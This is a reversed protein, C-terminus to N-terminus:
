VEYTSGPRHLNWGHPSFPISRILVHHIDAQAKIVIDPVVQEAFVSLSPFWLSLLLLVQCSISLGKIM